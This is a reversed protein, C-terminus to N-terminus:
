EPPTGTYVHHSLCPPPWLSTGPMGAAVSAAACRLATVAKGRPELRAPRVAAPYFRDLAERGRAGWFREVLAHYEDVTRADDFMTWELECKGLGDDATVGLM